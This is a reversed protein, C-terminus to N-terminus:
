LVLVRFLSPFALGEFGLAIPEIGLPAGEGLLDPRLTRLELHQALLVRVLPLGGGLELGLAVGELRFAAGEM